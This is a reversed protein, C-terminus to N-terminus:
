FYLSTSPTVRQPPIFINIAAPSFFFLILAPLRKSTSFDFPFPPFYLFFQVCIAVPVLERLSRFLNCPSAGSASSSLPPSSM